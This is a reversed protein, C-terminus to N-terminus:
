KTKGAGSDVVKAKYPLRSQITDVMKEPTVKAPDYHVVVRKEEFSVRADSVGELKKLVVKVSTACAGCTMGQVDVTAIRAPSADAGSCPRTLTLAAAVIVIGVLATGLSLLKKM